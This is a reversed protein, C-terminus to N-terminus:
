FNVFNTILKSSQKSLRLTDMNVLVFMQETYLIKVLFTSYAVTATANSM